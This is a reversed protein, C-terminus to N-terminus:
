PELEKLREVIIDIAKKTEEVKVMDLKSKEITNKFAREYFYKSLGELDFNGGTIVFFM